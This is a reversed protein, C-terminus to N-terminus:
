HGHFSGRTVKVPNRATVNLWPPSEAQAQAYADRVAHSDPLNLDLERGVALADSFEPKESGSVDREMPTVFLAHNTPMRPIDRQIANEAAEASLQGILAAFRVFM